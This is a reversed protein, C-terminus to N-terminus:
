REFSRSIFIGLRAAIGGILPLRGVRMWLNQLRNVEPDLARLYTATAEYEAAVDPASERQEDVVDGALRVIQDVSADLSATARIRRCVELAAAPDYRSIERRVSELDIPTMLTRRGFNLVRYRDLEAPTVMAGMRTRGTLIVAAGTAMAELACRARAFVLDYQLLSEEPRAVSTGLSYGVIDVDIEEERCATRIARLQENDEFQNGFLAARRPRPPLSGRATFRSLDVANLIVEVNAEGIGHSFLLHSRCTEDVAVYRRIRPFKPVIAQPGHVFYIAPTGPFRHLASMTGLHDNGIVVDPPAAVNRLDSTVPITWGRLESAVAGLNPSYVIPEHHQELLRVALDRVFLQTGGRRTLDYNTLLFRL